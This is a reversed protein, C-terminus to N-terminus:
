ESAPAQDRALSRQRAKVIPDGDSQKIEDKLEQRTM